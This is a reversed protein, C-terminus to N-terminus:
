NKVILKSSAFYNNGYIVLVYIGDQLYYNLNNSNLIPFKDVLQGSITYIFLQYNQNTILESLLINHHYYKANLPTSKFYDIKTYKNNNIYKCDRNLGYFKSWNPTFTKVSPYSKKNIKINTLSDNHLIFHQTEVFVFDMETDNDINEFMPTQTFLFGNFISDFDTFSHNNFNYVHFITKEIGHFIYNTTFLVDDNFHNGFKGVIPSSLSFDGNTKFTDLIEGNSGNIAVHLTHFYDSFLGYGLSIAVDPITDTNILGIAASTYAEYGQFDVSWLKSFDGGNIATITGDFGAIIIDLKNDLNLDAMSPTTIFGKTTGSLIKIFKTSDMSQLYDLRIAWFSGKITEGGTGFLVYQQGDNLFDHIIPSMYTEKYDPTRLKSILSGNSGSVLMIYGPYRNISDGAGAEANGGNTIVIDKIGDGNIDDIIQPDYFNFWGSDKPYMNKTDLFEWILKGNYKDVAFFEGLRGVFILESIGDNNVDLEKGTGYIDFRRRLDWILKGDIGDLAMVGSVFHFTTDEYGKPIIIDKIGDNNIDFTLASGMSYVSDIKIKWDAAITYSHMSFIFFLIACCNINFNNQHTTFIKYM